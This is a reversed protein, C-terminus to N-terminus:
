KSNKEEYKIKLTKGVLIEDGSNLLKMENGVLKEGNVETGNKTKLDQIFFGDSDKVIKLHDKGIFLLKDTSIVGVFDERGIIKEAGEVVINNNNPLILKAYALNNNPTHTVTTKLIKSQPSYKKYIQDIIFGAIAAMVIALVLDVAMTQFWISVTNLGYFVLAIIIGLATISLIIALIKPLTM